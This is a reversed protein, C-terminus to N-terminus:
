LNHEDAALTGGRVYATGAAVSKNGIAQTGPAALANWRLGVSGGGAGIIINSNTQSGECGGAAAAIVAIGDGSVGSFTNDNLRNYQSGFVATSQLITAGNVLAAGTNGSATCFLADRLLIAFSGAGAMSTIENGTAVVRQPQAGNAEQILIAVSGPATVNEIKNNHIAGGSIAGGAEIGQFVCSEVTNANANFHRISGGTSGNCNIGYQTFPVGDLLGSVYNSTVNIDDVVGSAAYVYIGRNLVGRLYNERVTVGDCNRTEIGVYFPKEIGNGIAEVSTCGRFSLAVNEGDNQNISWAAFTGSGVVATVNVVMTVSTYSTVTGIMYNHAAATAIMMVQQGATVTRGAPVTFTQAGLGITVSSSSALGAATTFKIGRVVPRDRNVAMLLPVKADTGRKLTLRNGGDITVRDGPFTLTETPILATGFEGELPVQLAAGYDLWAQMALTDDAAGDLVAGFQRPRAPCARLEWAVGGGNTLIHWPMIAGPVSGLLVYTGGGGDGVSSYGLLTLTQFGAPVTAAVAAARTAARYDTLGLLLAQTGVDAAKLLARGAATANSIQEATVTAGPTGLPVAIPDGNGDYGQLTSARTAAYPLVFGGEGEPVTVSRSSADDIDRRLEQLTITQADLEREFAASVISGARTVDTLRPHTRGGEIRVRDGAQRGLAFTAIPAGPVSAITVNVGVTVVVWRGAQLVSVRVDLPDIVQFDSVPGFVTQGATAIFDKRRISRPLPYTVSM